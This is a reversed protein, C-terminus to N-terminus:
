DMMESAQNEKETRRNKIKLEFVKKIEWRRMEEQM